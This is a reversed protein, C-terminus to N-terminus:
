LELVVRYQGEGWPVLILRYIAANQSAMADLFAMVQARGGAFILGQASAQRLGSKKGAAIIQAANLRSAAQGGADTSLKGNISAGAAAGREKQSAKVELVGSVGRLRGCLEDPDASPAGVLQLLFRDGTFSILEFPTPPPAEGIVQRLVALCNALPAYGTASVQIRDAPQEPPPASAERPATTDSPTQSAPTGPETRIESTGIALEPTRGPRRESTLKMWGWLAVVVIGAVIILGLFWSPQGSAPKRRERLPKASQPQATKSPSPPAAVPRGAQPPSPSELFNVQAFDAEDLHLGLLKYGAEAATQQILDLLRARMAALRISGDPEFAYHFRYQDVPDLLANSLEWQLHQALETPPLKLPPLRLGIGWVAPIELRVALEPVPCSRSLALLAEALRARESESTLTLPSLEFDLKVNGLPIEVSPGRGDVDGPGEARIEHLSVAGKRWRLLLRM